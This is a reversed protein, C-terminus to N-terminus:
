LKGLNEVKIFKENITKKLYYCFFLLSSIYIFNM